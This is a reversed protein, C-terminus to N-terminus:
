QRIHLRMNLVPKTQTKIVDADKYEDLWHAPIAGAGQEERPAGGEGLGEGADMGPGAAVEVARGWAGREEEEESDGSARGNRGDPRDLDWRQSSEVGQLRTALPRQRCSGGKTVDLEM